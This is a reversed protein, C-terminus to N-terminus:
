AFFPRLVAEIRECTAAESDAFELHGDPRILGVEFSAITKSKGLKGVRKLDGQPLADCDKVWAQAAGVERRKEAETALHGLSMKLNLRGGHNIEMYASYASKKHWGFNLITDPRSGFTYCRPTLSGPLRSALKEKVLGLLYINWAGGRYERIQTRDCQKVRDQMAVEQRLADRWDAIIKDETKVAEVAELFPRLRIWEFPGKPRGYFEGMGLTVYLAKADPAAEAYVVTQADKSKRGPRPAKHEHDDVKMEILVSPTEASGDFIALDIRKWERECRPIDPAEVGLKTLFTELPERTGKESLACLYVIMGTHVKGISYGISKVINAM